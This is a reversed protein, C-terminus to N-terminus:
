SRCYRSRSSSAPAPLQARRCFSFAAHRPVLNEGRDFLVADAEHPEHEGVDCPERLADLDRATFELGREVVALAKVTRRDLPERPDVLAVHDGHRVGRGEFKHRPVVPVNFAQHEAVDEERATLLILTVRPANEFADELSEFRLVPHELDAGFELVEVERTGLVGLNEVMRAVEVQRRGVEALVEPLLRDEREMRNVNGDLVRVVLYRGALVFEVEFVGVSQRHGVIRDHGLEEDLLYRALLADVRREHRLRDVALVAAAHM